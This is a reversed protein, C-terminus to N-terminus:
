RARARGDAKRSPVLGYLPEPKRDVTGPPRGRPRGWSACERGGSPSRTWRRGRSRSAGSDWFRQFADAQEDATEFLNRMEESLETQLRLGDIWAQILGQASRINVEQTRVTYNYAAFAIRQTTRALEEQTMWGMQEFGQTTSTM